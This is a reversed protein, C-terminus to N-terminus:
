TWTTALRFAAQPQFGSREYTRVAATNAENVHLTVMGHRTLLRRCLERMAAAAIGRGRYTPPVYTGGVQCGLDTATGVTITFVIDGGQEVVWTKGLRIRERVVQLHLEPQVKAPNRGLDEEEMAGAYTAVREAESALAPRLGDIGDGAQPHFCAYLRQDYWRYPSVGGAWAEWLIDCTKRPGVMMQPLGRGRLADALRQAHGDEPCFPVVLRNHLALVVGLVRQESVVGTWYGKTLSMADLFGLLFLNQTPEQHLLRALAVQHEQTLPVVEM